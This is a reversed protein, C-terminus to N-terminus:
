GFEYICVTIAYEEHEDRGRKRRGGEGPPADRKSEEIARRFEEAEDYIERSNMTSRRKPAQLLQRNRAENRRSRDRSSPEPSGAPSAEEKLPIYMSYRTRHM